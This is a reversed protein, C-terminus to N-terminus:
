PLCPLPHKQNKEEERLWPGQPHLLPLLSPSPSLESALKSLGGCPLPVEDGPGAEVSMSPSHEHVSM